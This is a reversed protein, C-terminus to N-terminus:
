VIMRTEFATSPIFPYDSVHRREGPGPHVHLQPLEHWHGVPWHVQLYNFSHITPLHPHRHIPVDTKKTRQSQRQRAKKM